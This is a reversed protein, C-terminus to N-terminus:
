KNLPLLKKLYKWSAKVSSSDSLNGKINEITAGEEITISTNGNVDLNLQSTQVSKGLVIAGDKTQLSIQDFKFPSENRKADDETGIKLLGTGYVMAQLGPLQGYSTHKIIAEANEVVINSLSPIKLNVDIEDLFQEFGKENSVNVYEVFVTDARHHIRVSDTANYYDFYASDSYQLNCKLLRGETSVLKIVRHSKLFGSRHNGGSNHENKMTIFEGKKIMSKFSMLVFLPILFVIAFFGLLIKNSTRM